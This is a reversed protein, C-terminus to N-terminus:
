PRSRDAFVARIRSSIHATLPQLENFTLLQPNSAAADAVAWAVSVGRDEILPPLQARATANAAAREAIFRAATARVQPESDGALTILVGMSLQDDAGSALLAATRRGRVDARLLEALYQEWHGGTRRELTAQLWRASPRPDIDDMLTPASEPADAIARALPILRAAVADPLDAAKFALLDLARALYGGWQTSELLRYVIDWNASQPHYVNLLAVIHGLDAGGLAYQGQAAESIQVELQAAIGAVLSPVLEADLGAIDALAKLAELSGNRAEAALRDRVDPLHAAAAGLLPHTLVWHDASARDAARQARDPTWAAPPLRRVLRALRSALSQDSQEPLGLVFEALQHHVDEGVVDALATLLDVLLPRLLFNPRTRQAYQGPDQFTRQAWEALEEARDSPLLDSSEILLRLDAQASTRTSSIPDVELAADRAATAPGDNIVRRIVLQLRRHDGCRRLTTLAATVTDTDAGHERDTLMYIAVDSATHRWATHDGLLGALLSASRLNQLAEDGGGFSIATDRGWARFSKEAQASLGWGSVQHRWWSGTTDSASVTSGFDQAGWDSITLVTNAAAGGIAAATVDDPALQGLGILGLAEDRAEQRRGLESLARAHQLQVWAHDVQDLEDRALLADLARIAKDPRGDELLAAAYAVTAAAQEHPPRGPAALGRLVGADATEIYKLMGAAFTWDWAADADLAGLNPIYARTEEEPRVIDRLRVQVLMAVVQAATPPVTTGRNPHPAM